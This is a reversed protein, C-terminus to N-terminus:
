RKEENKKIASILAKNALDACHVKNEPLTGLAKVVEEKTIRSAEELSKGEAMQCIIDSTAIAAACGLTQFSAKSITGDKNLKLFIKMTDGCQPNGAYGVLDAGKMEGLNKPNFFHDLAKKSYNANKM